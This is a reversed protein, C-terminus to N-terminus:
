KNHLIVVVITNISRKVGVDIKNSYVNKSVSLRSFYRVVIM